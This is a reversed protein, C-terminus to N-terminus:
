PASQTCSYPQPAPYTAYTAPSPKPQSEVRPFPQSPIPLHHRIIKNIKRKKKRENTRVACAQQQDSGILCISITKSLRICM